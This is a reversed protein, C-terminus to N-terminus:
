PLDAPMPAPSLLFTDYPQADSMSPLLLDKGLRICDQLVRLIESSIDSQMYGEIAAVDVTILTVFGSDLNTATFVHACRKALSFIPLTFYFTSGQGLQSELWIRGGHM